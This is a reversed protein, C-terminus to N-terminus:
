IYIIFLTTPLSRISCKKMTPNQVTANSIFNSLGKIQDTTTNYWLQGNTPNSPDTSRVEIDTGQLQKYTTM